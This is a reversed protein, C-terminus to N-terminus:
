ATRGHVEAAAVIVVVVVGNKQSGINQRHGVGEEM